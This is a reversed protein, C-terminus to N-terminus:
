RSYNKNNYGTNIFMPTLFLLIGTLGLVIVGCGAFGMKAGYYEMITGAFANGLPHSGQNVLTYVSM